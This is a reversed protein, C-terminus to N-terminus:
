MLEIVLTNGEKAVIKAKKSDTESTTEPTSLLRAEWEVGRYFVRASGDTEYSVLDVVQGMDFDDSVDSRKAKRKQNLKRVLFVCVIILVSAIALNFDLGTKLIVESLGVVVFAIAIFLMYLTGSFLEMILLLFALGFWYM